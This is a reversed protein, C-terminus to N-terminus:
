TLAMLIEMDWSFLFPLVFAERNAIGLLHPFFSHLFQKQEIKWQLAFPILCRPAIAIVNVTVWREPVMRWLALVMYSLGM